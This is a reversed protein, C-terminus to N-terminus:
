RGVMQEYSSQNWSGRKWTETFLEWNFCSIRAKRLLENFTVELYGKPLFTPWTLGM